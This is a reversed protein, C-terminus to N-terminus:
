LRDQRVAFLHASGIVSAGRAPWRRCSVSPLSSGATGRRALTWSSGPPSSVRYDRDLFGLVFLLALVVLTVPQGCLYRFGALVAGESVAAGALPRIDGLCM